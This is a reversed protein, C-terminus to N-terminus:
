LQITCLTLNVYGADGIADGADGINQIHSVATFDPDVRASMAYIVMSSDGIHCVAEENIIYCNGHHKVNKIV